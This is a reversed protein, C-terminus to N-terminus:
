LLGRIIAISPPECHMICEIEWHKGVETSWLSKDNLKMIDSIQHEYASIRAELKQWLDLLDNEQAVSGGTILSAM